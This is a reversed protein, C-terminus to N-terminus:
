LGLLEIAAKAAPLSEGTKKIKNELKQISSQSSLEAVVGLMSISTNHKTQKEKPLADYDVCVLKKITRRSARRISAQTKDGIDVIESDELRKIGIGRITGFVYRLEKQLNRRATELAGREKTIDRGIVDSLTDYTITEGVQADKLFRILAVSDANLQFDPKM